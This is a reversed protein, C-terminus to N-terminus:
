LAWRTAVGATVRSGFAGAANLNRPAVTLEKVVFALEAAGYEHDLVLKGRFVVAAPGPGERTVAMVMFAGPLPLRLPLGTLLLAEDVVTVGLEVVYSGRGVAMRFAQPFGDDANVPLRLYPRSLPATVPATV